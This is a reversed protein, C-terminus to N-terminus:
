PHLIADVGESLTLIEAKLKGVLLNPPLVSFGFLLCLTKIVFSDPIRRSRRMGKINIYQNWEM